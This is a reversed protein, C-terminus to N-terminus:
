QHRLSFLDGTHITEACGRIGLEELGEVLGKPVTRLVGIKLPIVIVNWLKKLERALDLYKDRMKDEKIKVKHNAPVAFDVICHTRKKKKKKKKKRIIVLDTKLWFDPIQKYRFIGSFQTENELVFEPKHM